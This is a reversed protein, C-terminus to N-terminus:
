WLVEPFVEAIDQGSIRIEHHNTNLFQVAENQYKREDFEVNEFSVSFTKLPTDTCRRIISTVITSDLGGSLYAGVPVDSRLRIKTAETLSVLLKAACEEEGWNE